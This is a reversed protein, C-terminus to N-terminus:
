SAENLQRTGFSALHLWLAATSPVTSYQGALAVALTMCAATSPVTKEKLLLLLLLRAVPSLLLKGLSQRVTHLSMEGKRMATLGCSAGGDQAADCVDLVCLM